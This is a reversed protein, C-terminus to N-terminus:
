NAQHRSIYDLAFERLSAARMGVRTAEEEARAVDWGDRLVRRILWFAGVRNASACHIFMPQNATDDSLRLFEEVRADEIAGSGPVPVNYYAMGLERVRAAEATADFETPPRLNLVARVGQDKLGQLQEVTPQGATCFETNVWLFNRIEEQAVADGLHTTAILAVTALGAASRRLRAHM